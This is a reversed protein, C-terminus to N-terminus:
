DFRISDVIKQIERQLAPNAGEHTDGEIFIRTGDVDVIWVRITDGVTTNSWLPGADIDQWGYFYGPYCGHDVRVTFVVRKGAFGGVTVDSPGELLGTGRQRSAARAWDDVSGEPSGWWQWCPQAVDNPTMRTWYIMAEAGQPGVMSKNLSITGFRAWGHSSVVFSFPIGDVVMRTGAPVRHIDFSPPSELVAQDPQAAIAVDDGRSQALAVLLAMLVLAAAIVTIRTRTSTGPAQSRTMAAPADSSPPLPVDSPTVEGAAISGPSQGVRDTYLPQTGCNPCSSTETEGYWDCRLCISRNM